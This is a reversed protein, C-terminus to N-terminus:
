LSLVYETTAGTYTVYRILWDGEELFGSPLSIEVEITEGPSWRGDDNVDNLLIYTWTPPGQAEYPIRLATEGQKEIFLDASKGILTKAISREGVNKIWVKITNETINGDAFIIEVKVKLEEKVELLLAKQADTFTQFGTALATAFISAAVVVAITIISESVITTPM